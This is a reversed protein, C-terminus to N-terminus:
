SILILSIDSKGLVVCYLWLMVMIYGEYGVKFSIGIISVIQDLFAMFSSNPLLSALHSRVQDLFAM